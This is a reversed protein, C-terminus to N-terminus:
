TGDPSTPDVWAVSGDAYREHKWIPVRAKVADIVFRAAEFAEDRHAAAAVVAVAADGIALEGVRHCVAVRAPWRAEAEAVIEAVLREAMEPYASYGIGVVARGAHHDRVTGLFSVVAGHCPTVLRRSLAAVDLPATTLVSASM